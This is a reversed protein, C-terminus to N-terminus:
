ASIKDLLLTGNPTNGKHAQIISCAKDIYESDASLETKNILIIETEPGTSGNHERPIIYLLNSYNKLEELIHDTEHKPIYVKVGKVLGEVM